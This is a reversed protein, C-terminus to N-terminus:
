DEEGTHQRMLKNMARTAYKVIKEKDLSEHDTHVHVVSEDHGHEILGFVIAINTSNRFKARAEAKRQDIISQPDMGGAVALADVAHRGVGPITKTYLKKSFVGRDALAESATNAFEATGGLAGAVAAASDGAGLVTAAHGAIDGIGTLGGGVTKLQKAAFTFPDFAISFRDTTAPGCKCASVILPMRFHSFNERGPGVKAGTNDAEQGTRAGRSLKVKMSLSESETIKAIIDVWKGLFILQGNTTDTWEIHRPSTIAKLEQNEKIVTWRHTVPIQSGRKGLEVYADDLNRTAEKLRKEAVMVAVSNREKQAKTLMVQAATKKGQLEKIEEENLRKVHQGMMMYGGQHGTTRFVQCDSAPM